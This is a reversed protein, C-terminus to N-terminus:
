EDGGIADLHDEAAEISSFRQGDIEFTSGERTVTKGLRIMAVARLTAFRKEDLNAHEAAQSPGFPLIEAM